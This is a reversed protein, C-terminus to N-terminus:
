DVVLRDLELLGVLLHEVQVSCKVISVAEQSHASMTLVAHNMEVSIPFDKELVYELLDHVGEPHHVLALGDHQLGPLVVDRDQIELGVFEFFHGELEHVFLGVLGEDM